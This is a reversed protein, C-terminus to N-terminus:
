VHKYLFTLSKAKKVIYGYRCVFNQAKTVGVAKGRGERGKYFVFYVFVKRISLQNASKEQGRAGIELQQKGLRSYLRHIV